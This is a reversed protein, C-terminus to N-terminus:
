TQAIQYDPLTSETHRPNTEKNRLSMTDLTDRVRVCRVASKTRATPGGLKINFYCIFGANNKCGIM